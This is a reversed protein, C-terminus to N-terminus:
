DSAAVLPIGEDILLIPIDDYVPYAFKQDERVLAGSIRKSLEEGGRNRLKGAEIERNLREVEQQEALCLTQKTEPCVLIKLLDDAIAM